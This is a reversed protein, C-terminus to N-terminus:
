EQRLGGLIQRNKPGNQLLVFGDDGDVMPGIELQSFFAPLDTWKVRKDDGEVWNWEPSPKSRFVRVPLWVAGGQLWTALARDAFDERWTVLRASNIELIDYIRWNAHLNVPDLPYNLRFEALNDQENVALVLSNRNLLPILCKIRVLVDAKRSDLAGRRASKVNVVAMTTLALILLVKAAFKMQETGLVYGIALFVFPYLPLYREISGAEFVFAAFVIIPVAASVLLLLFMRGRKSRLLEIFTVAASVYFVILKWLSLRFLDRITVPAYPDQVLYRKLWMGDRDMNLFSRPVSFALRALVRFGGAQIQGHGSALIWEKLDAFHRIGVVVITSAYVAIGIVACAAVIQVAVRWHQRDHGQVFLPAAFAAPLVFIFPFWFLVALALMLAAILAAGPSAARSNQSFSFYMGAVLCALGVVYANGSHAYNLFADASLLGLTALAAPWTHGVVRRAVLFFLLVCALAAVFNVGIVTAFIRGQETLGAFLQTVPRTVVVCLWGFPRWLLHGFDWFPNSTLLRYDVPGGDHQHRLVAEVYVNTDAMFHAGTCVWVVMYILVLLPLTVRSVESLRTTHAAFELKVTAASATAVESIPSSAKPYVASNHVIGM